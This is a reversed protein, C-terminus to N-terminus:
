KKQEKLSRLEASEYSVDLGLDEAEQIVALIIEYMEYRTMESTGKMVQIYVFKNDNEEVRGIERYYDIINDIFPMAEELFKLSSKRKDEEIPVGYTSVYMRHLKKPDKLDHKDSKAIIDLIKWYKSNQLLSRSESWEKVEVVLDNKKFKDQIFNKAFDKHITQKTTKFKM